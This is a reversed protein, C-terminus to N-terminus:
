GFYKSSFAIYSFYSYVLGLLTSKNYELLCSTALCRKEGTFGHTGIMRDGM